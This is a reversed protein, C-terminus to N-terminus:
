GPVSMHEKDPRRHVSLPARDSSNSISVFCLCSWSEKKSVNVTFVTTRLYHICSDRTSDIWAIGKTGLSKEMNRGNM